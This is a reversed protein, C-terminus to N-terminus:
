EDGRSSADLRSTRVQEEHSLVAGVLLFLLTARQMM